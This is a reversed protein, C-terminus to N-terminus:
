RVGGLRPLAPAHTAEFNLERDARGDHYEVRVEIRSIGGGPEVSWLVQYRGERREGPLPDPVGQLSDIITAALDIAGTRAEAERLSRAAILQTGLAGLLGIALLTLAVVMEVLSLGPRTALGRGVM